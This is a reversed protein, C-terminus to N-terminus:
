ESRFFSQTGAPTAGFAVGLNAFIPGCDADSETAM